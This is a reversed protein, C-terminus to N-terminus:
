SIELSNDTIFDYDLVVDEDCATSLEYHFFEPGPGHCAIVRVGQNKATEVVPVFDSDGAVLVAIGIQKDTSMRILDAALMIDVRKQRLRRQVKKGCLQCVLSEKNCDPCKVHEWVLKGLRTTFRPIRKLYNIFGQKGRYRNREEETPPSSQYPMCNYYYTRFLDNPSCLVDVFKAFDIRPEGFGKLVKELYGGDIFVGVKEIVPSM